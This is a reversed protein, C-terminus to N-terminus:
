VRSGNETKVRALSSNYILKSHIRESLTQVAPMDINPAMIPNFIRSFFTWM